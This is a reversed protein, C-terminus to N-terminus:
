NFRPPPASWPITGDDGSFGPDGPFEARLGVNLSAMGESHPSARDEEKLLLANVM